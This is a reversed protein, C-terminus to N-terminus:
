ATKLNKKKFYSNFSVWFIIYVVIFVGFWLLTSVVTHPFWGCFFGALYMVVSTIVFHVITRKLLSWSEAEFIASGAAFTTGILGTILYQIFAAAMKTKTHDVLYTTLAYFNGDGALLSNILIITQGIFVGYMFGLLGRKILKNLM